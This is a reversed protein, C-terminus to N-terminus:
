RLLFVVVILIVAGAQARLVQNPYSRKLNQWRRALWLMLVITAGTLAACKLFGGELGIIPGLHKGRLVAFIFWLHVGYVLLSQQGAIKVPELSRIQRGEFSYLVACFILVCGFRLLVFLPSTSWFDVHGPLSWPLQNGALAVAIATPGAFAARRMFKGGAGVEDSKVFLFAVGSGALVFASWPFIPFL